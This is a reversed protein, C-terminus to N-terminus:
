PIKTPIDKKLLLDSLGLDITGSQSVKDPSNTLIDDILTATQDTVRTPRTILQELTNTFCLESRTLHPIEKNITNAPKYRFIERDKPQM